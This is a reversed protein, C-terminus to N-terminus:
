TSSDNHFYNMKRDLEKKRDVGGGRGRGGRGQRKSSNSNNHTNTNTNNHTNNTKNNNIIEIEEEDSVIEGDEKQQDEQEEEIVVEKNVGLYQVKVSFTEAFVQAMDADYIAFVVRSFCNGFKANAGVLFQKWMNAVLKPRNGFVGCGWAGLVIESHEYFACISLIRDAREVLTESILTPPSVRQIAHKANVAPSTIFTALYPTPLLDGEDTRFIPVKPSYIINHTYLCTKERSNEEYFRNMHPLTLCSYIASSRAISEEQATAGKLFGGGPHRASAFNLVAVDKEASELALARTAELTTCCMVDIITTINKRNINKAKIRSFGNPAFLETGAKASDM